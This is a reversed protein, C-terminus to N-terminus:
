PCPNKTCAWLGRREARARREIAEFDTVRDAGNPPVYLVCAYGGEVLSANVERGAVSVYALLRGFRDTCERDYRLTVDRGEVLSRNFDRAAAGYCEERGAGIEPADVLLYRVREGSSLEVTDGDIVRGVVGAAPGCASEPAGCAAPIAALVLALTGIRCRRPVACHVM